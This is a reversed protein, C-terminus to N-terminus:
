RSGGTIVNGLGGKSKVNKDIMREAQCIKSHHECGGEEESDSQPSLSECEHKATEIANEFDIGATRAETLSGKSDDDEEDTVGASKLGEVLEQERLLAMENDELQKKEEMLQARLVAIEKTGALIHDKQRVYEKLAENYKEAHRTLAKNMNEAYEKIANNDAEAASKHLSAIHAQAKKVKDLYRKKSQEIETLRQHFIQRLMQFDRKRAKLCQAKYKKFRSKDITAFTTRKKKLLASLSLKLTGTAVAARRKKRYASLRKRAQNECQIVIETHKTQYTMSAKTIANELSHSIELQKELVAQVASLQESLQAKIGQKQKSLHAEIENKLEKTEATLERTTLHFNEKIEMLVDELEREKDLLNERQTKLNDRLGENEDEFKERLEKAEELAKGSLQPCQPARQHIKVCDYENWDETDPCVACAQLVSICKMGSQGAFAGCKDAFENQKEKMEALAINCIEKEDKKNTWERQLEQCQQLETDKNTRKERTLVGPTTLDRELNRVKQDLAQLITKIDKDTKNSKSILTSIGKGVQCSPTSLLSTSEIAEKEKKDKLHKIYTKSPVPGMTLFAFLLCLFSPFISKTIFKNSM